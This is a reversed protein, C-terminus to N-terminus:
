VQDAYKMHTREVHWFGIITNEAVLFHYFGGKLGGGGKGTIRARLELRKLSM